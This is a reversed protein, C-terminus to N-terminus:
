LPISVFYIVAANQEEKKIHGHEKLDHTIMDRWMKKENTANLRNQSKVIKREGNSRNNM